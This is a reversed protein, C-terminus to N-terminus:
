KTNNLIEAIRNEIREVAKEKNDLWDLIHINMTEWGLGNLVNRQSINREEATSNEVSNRTECFIGLIYRDSDDPHTVAVDVRFDSCGISCDANYGRKRLEDAVLFEFGEATTRTNGAKVAIRGGQEAFKLFGKLGEVGESRTSTLNIMDSTIVSFVLMQKRARTIAVNLRKWGGDRNLPGFNMSLKGEIDPGYGISFMIVDREDGQINELNKIIIPETMEDAIKELHPEKRYEEALMDDILNQQPMSFTVVGISEKRLKEDKLRRIIENVVAQAEAKNTRTKSRDYYGEVAIHSVKSVRNDASPFTYLKNDYYKANSYAILSEHRSRYHWLLHEGSMSLALCDDLLSELDENEINDEDVHSAAFFSTPPLQKPDGSIIVNEGRSVAGVAECTPLQSAEDFIVFDFKPYSPDIYQAVSIPSMLMVPCIKRLLAPINEFLRRISMGRGGNKIAKKLVLLESDATENDPIRASLKAKLEAITLCRFKELSINFKRITDEFISGQFEALAPTESIIKFVYGRCVDCEFAKVLNDSLIDGDFYTKIVNSIGYEELRRCIKMIGTWEKLMPLESIINRVQEKTNNIWNDGYINDPSLSYKEKLESLITESVAYKEIFKQADASNEAKRQSTGFLDSLHQSIQQKESSEFSSGCIIKRLEESLVVAKELTEWNSNEGMLLGTHSSFVDSIATPINNVKNTLAKLNNLRQCYEGFNEKSVTDASKAHANLSKVLKGSKLLKPLIWSNQAEKWEALANGSDFGDVSQEFQSLIESKLKKQEKGDAILNKVTEAMRDWAEGYVIQPIIDGEDIASSLISSMDKLQSFSINSKGSIDCTYSIEAELETISDTLKNLKDSINERFAPSYETMSCCKLSTGSVNGYAKGAAALKELEDKCLAFHEATLASLFEDSFRLKGGYEANKEYVVAAEYLSLGINRKFHIEKASKNLESRLAAIRECETKYESSSKSKVTNLVNDLQNLVDRKRSKNSHLELCFPALGLKEIRKQVVELAAMKEAVFLVTKDHYLANAIINTITQSKGTGPPGHLIFSKEQNAAYVAALQSSDASLPVALDCPMVNEDLESPNISTYDDSWEKKGSVLSAVVKNKMLDDSRNRIDNWMIFRSFSFQGIFAFEKIDWRSNSMIAQRITSFILPIDVGSSDEPLQNLGIDIGYNQRLMELLTINIQAAEDRSKVTYMKDQIKRTITVPILVLPAYRPKESRDTEYWELFGIALYITNAGNEELSVKAQRRLKTMAKELDSANLYTRLRHNKLEEEAIVNIHENNNELLFLKDDVAKLFEDDPVSCVSFEVGKSIEDELLSLDSSIIRVGSSTCRFNLLSNRLSLDLLKREWMKQKTLEEGPVDLHINGVPIIEAPANTIDEKKRDGYEIARFIGAESIRSPIPRIGSIRTRKVDIAYTFKDATLKSISHAEATNFDVAGGAAFDTCEVVSIIDVGKATRKSIASYDYQVCDPFSQEELWCGAFAHGEIVIILPNIGIYELCSCYLVALDLCTGSQSTLVNDPLRVRQASEYSAPPPIYSIKKAQLAAYVAAMQMKVVNVSRSQYGTFSPDGCWENLYVSAKSLIEAIKPHNPTIFASIMEPLFLSGTWQDYALLEINETYRCITEDGDVAEITVCGVIKETLGFLYDAHLIINVPSIEVEENAPVDVSVEYEKAFLPEFSIKVLLNSFDRESNNKITISRFVPIYNQQMAFNIQNVAECSITIINNM